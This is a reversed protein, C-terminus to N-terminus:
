GGPLTVHLRNLYSQENAKCPLHGVKERWIFYALPRNLFYQNSIAGEGLRGTWLRNLYYQSLRIDMNNM